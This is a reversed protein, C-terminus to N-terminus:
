LDKVLRVSFGLFRNSNYVLAHNSCFWLRYGGSSSYGESTWYIGIEKPYYVRSGDRYGAAPLFVAGNEALRAWQAATFTQYQAFAEKTYESHYGSKFTIGSPCTWNDPLLILGNVGDVQAVGQLSSAQARSKLLYEWEDDSLTRWTDPLYEGIQNTGWDVFDGTFDTVFISTTVGFKANEDTASWGFLDVWGDYTSSLNENAKGVYDTQKEAFRWIKNKPHYQLNGPSFLIHKDSSVAFAPKTMVDLAYSMSPETVKSFTRSTTQKDNKVRITAGEAFTGYLYANGKNDTTLTYSDGMVETAGAPVFGTVSVSLERGTEAAMRLRSYSRKVNGFSILVVGEAYTALTSFYEGTGLPLNVKPAVTGEVLTCNPAYTVIIQSQSTLGALVEAAMWEGQESRTLTTSSGADTVVFLEDGAEWTSKGVDPTGIARSDPDFSPFEDVAFKLTSLTNQEEIGSEQCSFLACLAACLAFLTYLKKM